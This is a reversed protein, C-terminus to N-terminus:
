KSAATVEKEAADRMSKGVQPGYKQMMSGWIEQTAKGQNAMFKQGTPSKLFTTLDRIEQATYYKGFADYHAKIADNRFADTGFQKGAGDVMRQVAGNKKLKEVAAQKQADSLTKNEVLVQELVLPAEQKAGAQWNEAQGKVAQDAQMVSLLEKIAATKDADQARAHQAVMLAPVFAALVAIRRTTNLM